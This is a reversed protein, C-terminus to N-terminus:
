IVKKSRYIKQVPHAGAFIAVELALYSFLGRYICFVSLYLLRYFLSCVDFTTGEIVIIVFTGNCLFLLQSDLEQENINKFVV